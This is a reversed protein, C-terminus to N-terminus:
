EAAAHAPTPVASTLHRSAFWQRLAHPKRRKPEERTFLLEKWSRLPEM